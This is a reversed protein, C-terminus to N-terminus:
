VATGALLKLIMQEMERDDIEIAFALQKELEEIEKANLKKMIM